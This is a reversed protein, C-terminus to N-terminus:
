VKSNSFFSVYVNKVNQRTPLLTRSVGGVACHNWRNPISIRNAAIRNKYFSYTRLDSDGMRHILYTPSMVPQDRTVVGITSRTINYEVKPLTNHQYRTVILWSWRPLLPKVVSPVRTYMYVKINKKISKRKTSITVLLTVVINYTFFSFFDM